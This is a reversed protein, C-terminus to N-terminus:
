GMGSHIHISLCTIFGKKGLQVAALRGAKRRKGTGACDAEPPPRFGAVIVTRLKGPITVTDEMGPGVAAINVLGLDKGQNVIIMDRVPNEMDLQDGPDAPGNAAAQAEVLIQDLGNGQAMVDAMRGKAMDTFADEILEAPLMAQIAKGV